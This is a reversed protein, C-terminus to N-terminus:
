EQQDFIKYTRFRFEIVTQDTSHKFVSPKFSKNDDTYIALTAIDKTTAGYRDYIKYYYIFMREAFNIEYKGQIEIHILLWKNKGNKLEIKVLNDTYRRGKGFKQAIIKHFEKDLFEPEVNFNIIPYLDPLFFEVFNPFMQPIISKWQTDYDIKIINNEPM